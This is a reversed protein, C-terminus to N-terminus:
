RQQGAVYADIGLEDLRANKAMLGDALEIRYEELLGALETDGLALIRVALHAANGAQGIGVCAVPIGPPMQVTSYLADVGNLGASESRLPVGIVPLVSHAAVVGALHAAMGAGCIFARVGRDPAAEVYEVTEAPSRHASLFRVEHPVGFRDLVDAAARMVGLDSDSGMLIAVRPNSSSM